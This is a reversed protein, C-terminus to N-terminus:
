YQEALNELTEGVESVAYYLLGVSQKTGSLREDAGLKLVSVFVQMRCACYRILRPWQWNEPPVDAEETLDYCYLLLWQSKSSYKLNTYGLSDTSFFYCNHLLIVLTFTILNLHTFTLITCLKLIAHNYGSFQESLAKFATGPKQIVSNCANAIEERKAEDPYQNEMFFSRTLVHATNSFTLDHQM